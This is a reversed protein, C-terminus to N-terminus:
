GRLNNALNMLTDASQISRANLQFERQVVMLDTLEETMDVNSGELFGQRVAVPQLTPDNANFDVPRLANNLNNPDVSYLNDGLNQLLQPRLVRQLKIQGAEISEGSSNGAQKASVVGQPSVSVDYGRPVTIPNNDIGMVVYGQSTTLQVQDPNGAVPSLQFAGNRTWAKQAAGNQDPLLLDVEYLADGEIALDLPNGTMKLAGESMDLQVSSVRSGWGGPLGLGTKRGPQLFQQPQAKISNLLDDFSVSKRKFGDTNVNAINGALVDMKQQLGQMSTSAIIMSPNM